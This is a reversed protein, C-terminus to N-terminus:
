AGDTGDQGEAARIQGAPLARRVLPPLFRLRLGPLRRPLQIARLRHLTLALYRHERPQARVRRHEAVEARGSGLRIRRDAAAAVHPACQVSIADAWKRVHWCGRLSLNVTSSWM